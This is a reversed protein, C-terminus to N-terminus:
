SDLGSKICGLICNGKWAVLARQQSMNMKKDVLVGFHKKVPSSETLEELRYEYRPAGQGLHLVKGKAM